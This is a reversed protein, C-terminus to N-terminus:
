FRGRGKQGSRSHRAPDAPGGPGVRRVAGNMRLSTSFGCTLQLLSLGCANERVMSWTSIPPQCRGRLSRRRFEPRRSPLRAIGLGTPHLLRGTGDRRYSAACSAGAAGLRRRVVGTPMPHCATMVDPFPLEVDAAAGDVSRTPHAVSLGPESAAVGRRVWGPAAQDPQVSVAQGRVVGPRRAFVEVWGSRATACM